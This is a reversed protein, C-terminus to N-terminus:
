REIKLKKRRRLISSVFVSKITEELESKEDDTLKRGEFLLFNMEMIKDYEGQEYDDLKFAKIMEQRERATREKETEKPTQHKNENPFDIGMIFNPEVKLIKALAAIRDRRMNEIEGSEWRSVTAASVGVKDAVEQLTLGLELRRKKLKNRM